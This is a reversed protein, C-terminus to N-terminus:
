HRRRAPPVYASSSSSAGGGATAVPKGETSTTTTTTTGVPTVATPFLLRIPAREMPAAARPLSVTPEDRRQPAAAGRRSTATPEGHLTGSAREVAAVLEDESLHQMDRLQVAVTEHNPNAKDRRPRIVRWLHTHLPSPQSGDQGVHVVLHDAVTDDQVHCEVILGDCLTMADVESQTALVLSGQLPAEDTGKDGRQLSCPIFEWHSPVAAPPPPGAGGGRRYHQGRVGEDDIGEGVAAEVIRGKSLRFDVTCQASPKWKFLSDDEGRMYSRRDSQFIIGDTPFPLSADSEFMRRILVIPHFEKLCIFTKPAAPLAAASPPSPPAGASGQVVVGGVRDIGAKTCKNLLFQYREEFTIKRSNWSPTTVWDFLFLRHRGDVGDSSPLRPSCTPMKVSPLLEVLEGDYVDAVRELTPAECTQRWAAPIWSEPMKFARHFKSPVLYWGLSSHQVLLVRNGDAKWSARYTKFSSMFRSGVDSFSQKHVLGCVLAGPFVTPSSKGSLHGTAKHLDSSLTLFADQDTEMVLGPAIEPARPPQFAPLPCKGLYKDVQAFLIRTVADVGLDDVAVNHLAGYPEFVNVCAEYVAAHEIMRRQESQPKGRVEAAAAAPDPEAADRATARRLGIDSDMMLNFVLDLQLGSAHFRQLLYYPDAEGDLLFRDLVLGRKGEPVRGGGGRWAQAIGAIESKLCEHPKVGARALDGSSLYTLGYASALAKGQTSKGCGRPGLLLIAIPRETPQRTAVPSPRPAQPPLPVDVNHLPIAHAADSRDYTALPAPLPLQAVGVLPAHAAPPLPHVYPAAAAPLSRALPPMMMVVSSPPFPNPLPFPVFPFPPRQQLAALQQQLMLQQMALNVATAAPDLSPANPPARMQMAPSTSPFPVAARPQPSRVASQPVFSQAEVRLETGGSPRPFPPGTSPAAGLFGPRFPAADANLSKNVSM